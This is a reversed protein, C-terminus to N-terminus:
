LNTPGPIPIPIAYVTDTNPILNLTAIQFITIYSGPFLTTNVAEVSYRTGDRADCVVDRVDLLPYGPFRAVVSFLEMVGAGGPDLRKTQAGNDSTYMCPVPSFYGGDLGVGYDAQKTDTIAGGTVPDINRLTQKSKGGYSKRRLLWGAVGAFRARLFEKRIVEAAM